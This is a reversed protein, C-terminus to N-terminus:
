ALLRARTGVGPTLTRQGGSNGTGSRGGSGRGQVPLRIRRRPRAPIQSLGAHRYLRRGPPLAVPLPNGGGGGPHAPGPPPGPQYHGPHHGRGGWGRAPRFHLFPRNEAQGPAPAEPLLPQFLRHRFRGPGRFHGNGQAKGPDPRHRGPRGHPRKGNSGTGSPPPRSGLGGPRRQGNGCYQRPPVPRRVSKGGHDPASPRPGALGQGSPLSGAAGLHRHASDPWM